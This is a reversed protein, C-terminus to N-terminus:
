ADRSDAMWKIQNKGDKMEKRLIHVCIVNIEKKVILLTANLAKSSQYVHLLLFVKKVPIRIFFLLFYILILLLFV